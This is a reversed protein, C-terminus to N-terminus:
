LIRSESADRFISQDAKELVDGLYQVLIEEEPRRLTSSLKRLMIHVDLAHHAITSSAVFVTSTLYMESPTTLRAQLACTAAEIQLMLICFPDM